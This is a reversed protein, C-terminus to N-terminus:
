RREPQLVETYLTLLDGVRIDATNPATFRLFTKGDVNLVVTQNLPGPTLEIVPLIALTLRYRGRGPFPM